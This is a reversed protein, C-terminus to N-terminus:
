SDFSIGDTAGPAPATPPAEVVKEKDFAPLEEKVPLYSDIVNKLTKDQKEKQGVSLRVQTGILANMNDDSCTVEPSAFQKDTLDKGGQLGVLVKYLNSGGNYKSLKQSCYKWMHRGYFEGEEILVFDFVFVDEEDTSQYKTQTKISVDVLEAQYVDKPLVEFEKGVPVTVSSGQVPM